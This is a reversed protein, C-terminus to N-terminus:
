ERVEQWLDEMAQRAVGVVAEKKWVASPRNGLTNAADAAVAQWFGPMASKDWPRGALAEEAAKSRYANPAVSGLAVRPNYITHDRVSLVVALNIRAIALANRRGFKVFTSYTHDDGAAFYVERILEDPALTNKGVGALLDGVGAERQGRPSVIVCRAELAVLAPVTDAAPSATAINGGITGTNRIQPAGVAGAALRLARAKKQMIPSEVIETFTTASGIHIFDGSRRIYRLDEARSIDILAQPAIKKERLALVLDTGGALLKANEYKKLYTLAERESRATLCAFSGM